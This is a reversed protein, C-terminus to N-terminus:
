YLCAKTNMQQRHPCMCVWRSPHLLQARTTTDMLGKLLQKRAMAAWKFLDVCFVPSVQPIGNPATRQSRSTGFAVSIEIMKSCRCEASLRKSPGGLTALPQEFLTIKWGVGAWTIIASHEVTPGWLPPRPTIPPYRSVPGIGHPRLSSSFHVPGSDAQISLPRAPAVLYQHKGGHLPGKLPGHVGRPPSLQHWVARWPNM